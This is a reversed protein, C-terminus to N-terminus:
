ARLVGSSPPPPSDNAHVQVTGACGSRSSGRGSGAGDDDGPVPRVPLTSAGYLERGKIKKLKGVVPSSSNSLLVLAAFWFPFNLCYACMSISHNLTRPTSHQHSHVSLKM